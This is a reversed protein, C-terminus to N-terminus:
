RPSRPAPEQSKVRLLDEPKRYHHLKVRCCNRHARSGETRQHFRPGEPHRRPFVFYDDRAFQVM